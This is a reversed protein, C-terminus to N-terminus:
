EAGGDAVDTAAGETAPEYNAAARLSVAVDRIIDELVTLEWGQTDPDDPTEQIEKIIRLAVFLRSAGEQVLWPLDVNQPQNVM